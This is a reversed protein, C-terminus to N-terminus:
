WRGPRGLVPPQGSLFLEWRGAEEEGRLLRTAILLGWIAGLIMLTFMTKYATYGAVTDIRRLPGFVAAFGANGQFSLALRARSAATPFAKPYSYAASAIIAGFIYGWLAGPRGARRGATLAVAWSARSADYVENRPM